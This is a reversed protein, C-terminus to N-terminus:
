NASAAPGCSKRRSVSGTIAASGPEWRCWAAPEKVAKRVANGEDITLTLPKECYVDKGARCADILMKTHWHDPTAILVVDVDKRKLLDRYDEFIRPTSGFSARAQERVNRDVDAIAVVDGHAIAKQTIVSGQYRMGIAGIGIREMKARPKGADGYSPEYFTVALGAAGIAVSSTALFERRTAHTPQTM